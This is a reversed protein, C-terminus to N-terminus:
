EICAAAAELIMWAQLQTSLDVAAGPEAASGPATPFV